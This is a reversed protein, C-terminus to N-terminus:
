CFFLPIIFDLPKVCSISYYPLLDFTLFILSKLRLESYFM